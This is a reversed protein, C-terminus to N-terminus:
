SDLSLPSTKDLFPSLLAIRDLKLSFAKFLPLEKEMQHVAQLVQLNSSSSYKIKDVLAMNITHIQQDFADLPLLQIDTNNLTTDINDQHSLADAPAMQIGLLVRYIMHFHPLFFLWQAQRCSLKCPEEFYILNKHDSLVEM